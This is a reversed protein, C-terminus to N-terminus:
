EVGTAGGRAPPHIHLERIKSKGRKNKDECESIIDHMLSLAKASSQALRFENATVNKKSQIVQATHRVAQIIEIRAQRVEEALMVDDVVEMGNESPEPNAADLVRGTAVVAPAQAEAVAPKKNLIDLLQDASTPAGPKNTKTETTRM